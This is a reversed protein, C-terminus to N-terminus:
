EENNKVEEKVAVPAEDPLSAKKSKAKKPAPEEAKVTEKKKEEKVVPKPVEVKVAPKVIPRRSLNSSKKTIFM